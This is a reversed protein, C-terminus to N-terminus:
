DDATMASEGLELAPPTILRGTSDVHPDSLPDTDDGVDVDDDMDVHRDAIGHQDVLTSAASDEPEASQNKDEEKVHMSDSEVDEDMAEMDLDESAALAVGRARGVPLWQGAAKTRSSRRGPISIPIQAQSQRRAASAGAAAAAAAARDQQLSHFTSAASGSGEGVSTYLSSGTARRAYPHKRTSSPGAHPLPGDRVNSVPRLTDPSASISLLAEAAATFAESSHTASSDAPPPLTMTPPGAGQGAISPNRGYLSVPSVDGDTEHPKVDRWGDSQSLSLPRHRSSSSSRHSTGSVTFGEFMPSVATSKLPGPIPLPGSTRGFGAMIPSDAHLSMVPSTLATSVSRVSSAYHFTGISNSRSVQAELDAIRGQLEHIYDIAHTLVELKHLGLDEEKDEADPGGSAETTAAAAAAAAARRRSRKRKAKDSASGGADGSAADGRGVADSEATPSLPPLGKAVRRASEEEQAKVRRREEVERACAPVLNRLTILRDNIKERRRREIQSHTARRKSDRSSASARKGPSTSSSSAAATAQSSSAHKKSLPVAPSPLLAPPISSNAVVASSGVNGSSPSSSASALTSHSSNATSYQPNFQGSSQARRRGPAATNTILAAPGPLKFSRSSLSAISSPHQVPMLMPSPNPSRDTIAASPGTPEFVGVPPPNAYAYSTPGLFPSFGPGRQTPPMPPSRSESISSSRPM